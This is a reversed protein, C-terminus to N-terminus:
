FSPTFEVARSLNITGTECIVSSDYLIKNFVNRWIGNQCTHNTWGLM